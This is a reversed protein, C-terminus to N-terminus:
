PAGQNGRTSPLRAGSLRAVLWVVILGLQPLLSASLPPAAPVVLGASPHFGTHQLGGTTSSGVRALRLGPPWRCLRCLRIQLAKASGGPPLRALARPSGGSPLGLPQVASAPGQRALHVAARARDPLPLRSRARASPPLPLVRAPPGRAALVLPFRGLVLPFGGLVPPFWPWPPRSPGPARTPHSHGFSPGTPCPIRTPRLWDPAPSQAERGLWGGSREPQIESNGM